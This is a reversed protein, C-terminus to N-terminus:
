DPRGVRFVSDRSVEFEDGIEALRDIPTVCYAHLAQVVLNEGKHAVVIAVLETDVGKSAPSLVVKEGPHYARESNMEHVSWGFTPGGKPRRHFDMGSDVTEERTRIRTSLWPWSVPGFSRASV